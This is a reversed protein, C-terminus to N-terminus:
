ESLPQTAGTVTGSRRTHLFNGVSEGPSLGRGDLGKGTVNSVSNYLIISQEKYESFFFNFLKHLPSLITSLVVPHLLLTQL